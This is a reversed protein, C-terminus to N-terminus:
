NIQFDGGPVNEGGCSLREQDKLGNDPLELKTRVSYQTADIKDTAKHWNADCITLYFDWTVDDKAAPTVTTAFPDTRVTALFGDFRLADAVSYDPNYGEDKFADGKRTMRGESNGWKGVCGTGFLTYVHGPPNPAATASNCTISRAPNDYQIFYSKKEAHYLEIANQYAAVSQKRNADRSQIQFRATNTLILSALIGIVATVMILELLTFGKRRSRNM